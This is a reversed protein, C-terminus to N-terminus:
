DFLDTNLNFLLPTLEQMHTKLMEESILGRAVGSRIVGNFQELSMQVTNPAPTHTPVTPSITKTELEPSRSSPQLASINSTARGSVPPLPVLCAQAVHHNAKTTSETTKTEGLSEQIMKEFKATAEAGACKIMSYASVIAM